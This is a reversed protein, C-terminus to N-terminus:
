TLKNLVDLVSKYIRIRNLGAEVYPLYKASDGPSEEMRQEYNPIVSIALAHSTNAILGQLVRVQVRNLKIPSGPSASCLVEKISSLARLERDKRRKDRTYVSVSAQVSRGVLRTIEDLTEQEDIM